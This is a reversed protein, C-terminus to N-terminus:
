PRILGTAAPGPEERAPPQLVRRLLDLLGRVPDGALPGVRRAAQELARLASAADRELPSRPGEMQATVEGFTERLTRVLEQANLSQPAHEVILGRAATEMTSALSAAAEAVDGDLLPRLPESRHRVVVSQFLMFFRTQRDTLEAMSPWLLAVDREHQRQVAAPPHQRASALYGCTTPCRIEVLRKTGCCVPCITQSLAPCRRKAQRANCLPCAM